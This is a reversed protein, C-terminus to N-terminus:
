SQQSDQSNPFHDLTPVSLEQEVWAKPTPPLSLMRHHHCTSSFSAGRRRLGQAKHDLHEPFAGQLTELPRVDSYNPLLAHRSHFRRWSQLSEEARAPLFDNENHYLLAPSPRKPFGVQSAVQPSPFTVPGQVPSPPSAHSTLVHCSHSASATPARHTRTHTMDRCVQGAPGMGLFLSLLTGLVLHWVFDENQM